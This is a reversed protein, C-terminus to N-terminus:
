TIELYANVWGHDFQSGYKKYFLIAPENWDLVQWVMRACGNERAYNLSREFLLKGLGRGRYPESVILDELYLCKGKWTSYRYYVVSLGVIKNDIEAVFAKFVASPGFGEAKMREPNNTVEDPAKEFIALERILGFMAEIDHEEADRIKITTESLPM